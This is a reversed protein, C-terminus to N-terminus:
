GQEKQRNFKRRNRLTVVFYLVVVTAFVLPNAFLGYYVLVLVLLAVAPVVIMMKQRPTM